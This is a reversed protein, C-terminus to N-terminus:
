ICGDFASPMVLRSFDARHTGFLIGSMALVEVIIVSENSLIKL